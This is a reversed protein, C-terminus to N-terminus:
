HRGSAHVTQDSTLGFRRERRSYWQMAEELKEESFDPWLTDSFYLEAYAIQWLLFNSVRREGGTRILLDVTPMSLYDPLTQRIWASDKAALDHSAAMRRVAESVDWRGSYNVAVNLLMRRDHILTIEEVERMKARMKPLFFSLDGIFRLHIRYHLWEQVENQLSESFLETLLRVERDPRRKNESSFAFLTLMRIGSDAAALVVNRATDVGRRHGYIRPKKRAGAWRGNGDMIIAVHEPKNM